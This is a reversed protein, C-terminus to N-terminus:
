KIPKKLANSSLVGDEGAAVIIWVGMYARSSSVRTRGISVQFYYQFYYIVDLGDPWM